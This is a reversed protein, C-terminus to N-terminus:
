LQFQGSRECLGYGIEGNLEWRAQAESLWSSSGMPEIMETMITGTLRLPPQGEAQVVLEVAPHLEDLSTLPTMETVRAPKVAGDEIVYARDYLLRDNLDHQRILGVGIRSGPFWVGALDHRGWRTLTRPGRSHDRWTPGSVAAAMGNIAITGKSMMLQHHHTRFGREGQQEPTAGDGYGLAWLPAVAEIEIDLQVRVEAGVGEDDASCGQARKAALVQSSQNLEDSNLHHRGLKEARTMRQGTTDAFLRWRRFPSLCEAHIADAGPRRSVAEGSTASLFIFDEAGPLLIYLRARWPLPRAGIHFFWGIDADPDYGTFCFTENFHPQPEPAPLQFDEDAPLGASWESNPNSM